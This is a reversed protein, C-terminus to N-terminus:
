EIKVGYKNLIDERTGLGYSHEKLRVGMLTALEESYIIGYIDDKFIILKDRCYQILKRRYREMGCPKLKIIMEEQEAHWHRYVWMLANILFTLLIHVKVGQDTKRPASGLNWANEDKSVRFLCNEILSRNDYEDFIVFPNLIERNTLFVAPNKQTKNDWMKVVVANIPNPKFNKRNADSPSGPERYADYSTLDPVGILETRKINEDKKEINTDTYTYTNTIDDSYKKKGTKRKKERGKERVFLKIEPCKPDDAYKNALAIADEYVNMDHRAPIVFFIGKKDIEWLHEGSLFGRDIVISDVEVGDLNKIAQNLVSMLFDHDSVNIKDIKLALPIRIFDSFCAGIKWGYVTKEFVHIKGRKDRTEEKRTVKGCCEYKDTTEYDTTDIILSINKGFIGKQALKRISENFVSEYACAPIKVINNTITDECIPVRERDEKRLHEGRRCIGNEMQYGNFGVSTMWKEDTLLLEPLANMSPINMMIRLIYILVYRFIPIMERQVQTSGLNELLEYIGMEKLFFFFEDLMARGELNYLANLEENNVLAQVIEKDDRAGSKWGLNELLNLICEKDDM